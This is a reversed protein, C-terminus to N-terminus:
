TCILQQGTDMARLSRAAGGLYAECGDIRPARARADDSIESSTADGLASCRAVFRPEGICAEQVRQVHEQVLAVDVQPGSLVTKLLLRGM